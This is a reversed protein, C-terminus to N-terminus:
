EEDLKSATQPLQKLEIKSLRPIAEEPDFPVAKHIFDAPSLGSLGQAWGYLELGMVSPGVSMVMEFNSDVPLSAATGYSYNSDLLGVRVLGVISHSIVANMDIDDDSVLRSYFETLEVHM